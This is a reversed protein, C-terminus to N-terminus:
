QHSILCREYTHTGEMFLTPSANPAARRRDVRHELRHLVLKAPDIYTGNQKVGFHLHPGSSYGSNGSWALLDGARLLGPLDAFRHHAMRGSDRDLALLRSGLVSATLVPLAFLPAYTLGATQLFHLTSFALLDIGITSVWQPDFTRGRGVPRTFMRVAVSAALYTGCLALMWYNAPTLGLAMMGALLVLLYTWM